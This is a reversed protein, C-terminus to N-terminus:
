GGEIGHIPVVRSYIDEKNMTKKVVDLNENFSKSNGRSIMEMKNSLPEEFTLKAPCGDLLIREM